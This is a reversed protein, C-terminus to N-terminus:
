TLMIVARLSVLAPNTTNSIESIISKELLEFSDIAIQVSFTAILSSRFTESKDPLVFIRTCDTPEESSSRCCAGSLNVQGSEHVGPLHLHGSEGHSHSGGSSDTEGNHHGACLAGGGLCSGILSFCIVLVLVYRGFAKMHFFEVFLLEYVRFDSCFLLM